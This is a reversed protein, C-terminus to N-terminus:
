AAADRRQIMKSSQARQGGGGVKWKEEDVMWGDRELVMM